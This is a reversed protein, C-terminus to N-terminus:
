ALRRSGAATSILGISSKAQKGGAGLLAVMVDEVM